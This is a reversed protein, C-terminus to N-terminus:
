ELFLDDIESEKDKYFDQKYVMHMNKHIHLQKITNEVTPIAENKVMFYDTKLQDVM